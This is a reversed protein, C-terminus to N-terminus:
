AVVLVTASVFAPAAWNANARSLFSVVLMMTLTPLAFFALLRAPPEAFTRPSAALAILGAFFFPGFVAFQSAFFEFFADPHILAEDLGANDKVHIYSVFGNHWNWWFNPAYILLAVGIATLLPRLHRRERRVLLVYGSASFIWYFMAYKALLGLGCAFGVALWWGWGSDERARIFAYLAAAWFLLLPADTSIIFASISAGPLSAYALASWLGIRSDYLRLGIAYVFVATGAHLLPASLRIAFETDGLLGTTLAILWAVLPPKSYYGLAPHQAWFWYQAEDPYLDAPQLLLWLLRLGTIALLGALMQAAPSRPLRFSAAPAAPEFRGITM